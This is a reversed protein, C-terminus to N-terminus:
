KKLSALFDDTAKQAAAQDGKFGNDMGTVGGFVTSYGGAPGSTGVQANKIQDYTASPGEFMQAPGGNFGNVTGARRRCGNRSWACNPDFACDAKRKHIACPSNSIRRRRHSVRRKSGSRRRKPSARSKSKSRSSRRCSVSKSKRPMTHINDTTM